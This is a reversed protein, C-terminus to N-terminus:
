DGTQIEEIRKLKRNWYLVVEGKEFYTVRIGTARLRVSPSPPGTDVADTQSIQSGVATPTLYTVEAYGSLQLRYVAKCSDDTPCLLVVLRATGSKDNKLLLAYDPHGDGDFDAHVVSPNLNPYHQVFARTESNRERLTLLHYGPFLKLVKDLNNDPEEAGSAASCHLLIVLVLPIFGFLRRM